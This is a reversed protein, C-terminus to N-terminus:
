NRGHHLLRRSHRWIWSPGRLLPYLFFFNRPLAFQRYDAYGISNARLVALWSSVSPSLLFQSMLIDLGGLARDQTEAVRGDCGMAGLAIRALWASAADARLDDSVSCPLGLGFIAHCLLLAQGAARRAGREATGRYLGAIEDSGKGAIWAHLDALWKLRSWAHHAGHLCLFAFLDQDGLTCLQAGPSVEVSRSAPWLTFRRSLARDDAIHWHLDVLTRRSGHRFTAESATAIWGDFRDDEADGAPAMRAYGGQRLVRCADKVWEPPVLADIDFSMKVNLNGYALQSLATGKLFLVPIGAAAFSRQVELAEAALKLNQRTVDEAAAALTRAAEAPVSVGAVTLGEHVLGSVRHREVVQVMCRWDIPAAAAARIRV